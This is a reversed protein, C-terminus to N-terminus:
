VAYSRGNREICRYDFGKKMEVEGWECSEVTYGDRLREVIKSIASDGYNRIVSKQRDPLRNLIEQEEESM